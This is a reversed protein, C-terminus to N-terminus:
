PIMEMELEVSGNRQATVPTGQSRYKELFEVSQWAGPVVNQWAFITYSGPAVAQIKFKGDGDTVATKYLASNQRRSEPPVLVVTVKSMPRRKSVVTGQVTAGDAAVVIQLSQSRAEIDIGNDFVSAAGYRIDAVYVTPPLGGVAVAYHGAPVDPSSFSGAEDVPFAGLLRALLPPTAGAADLSILLNKQHGGLANNRDVISGTLPSSRSLAVRVGEVDTNKVEVVVSGLWSVDRKPPGHMMYVFVDYLGPRVNRITFEGSPLVVSATSLALPTIPISYLPDPDRPLFQLEPSGVVAPPGAPLNLIKGTIKYQPTSAKQLRMEINGVEQGEDLRLAVAESVNSVGPYFVNAWMDQERETMDPSDPSAGVIYEGPPLYFLRYQGQDNSRASQASLLIRRGNSYGWRGALVFTKNMAQGNPNRITGSIVGGKVLAFDQSSAQGSEISVQNFAVSMASGNILSGFYGESQVLVTYRGPALDGLVYSGDDKTVTSSLAALGKFSFRRNALLRDISAVDLLQGDGFDIRVTGNADSAFVPQGANPGRLLMVQAGPIPENTSARVIKGKLLGAWSPAAAQQFSSVILAIALL